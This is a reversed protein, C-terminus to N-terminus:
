ELDLVFSISDMRVNSEKSHFSFDQMYLGKASLKVVIFSANAEVYGLTLDYLKSHGRSVSLPYGLDLSDQNVGLYVLAQTESTCPFSLTDSTQECDVQFGNVDDTISSIISAHLISGNDSEVKMTVEKVQSRYMYQEIKVADAGNVSYQRSIHDPHDEALGAYYGFYKLKVRQRKRIDRPLIFKVETEGVMGTSTKTKNKFTANGVLKMKNTKM